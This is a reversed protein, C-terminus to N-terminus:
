RTYLFTLIGYYSMFAMFMVFACLIITLIVSFIQKMNNLKISITAVYLVRAIWVMYRAYHSFM